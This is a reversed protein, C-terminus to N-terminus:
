AAGGGVDVNGFTGWGDCYGGLPQAIRNLEAQAAVVGEYTLVMAKTCYCTWSGSKDDQDVVSFYGLVKTQCAIADGVQRNPVDISFDIAMPRTPDSGNGFVRRMADGDADNPLEPLDSM